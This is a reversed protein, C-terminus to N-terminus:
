NRQNMNHRVRKITGNPRRNRNVSRSRKRTPSIYSSAPFQKNAWSLNRGTGYGRGNRYNGVVPDWNNGIHNPNNRNAEAVNVPWINAINEETLTEKRKPPAAGMRLPAFRLPSRKTNNSMQRILRVPSRPFGKKGNNM